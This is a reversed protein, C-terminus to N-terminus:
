PCVEDSIQAATRAAQGASTEVGILGGRNWLKCWLRILSGADFYSFLRISCLRRLTSGLHAALQRIVANIVQQMRVHSDGYHRGTNVTFAIRAEIRNMVFGCDGLIAFRLMIYEDGVRRRPNSEVRRGSATKKELM